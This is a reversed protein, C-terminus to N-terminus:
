IDTDQELPFIWVVHFEYIYMYTKVNTFVNIYLIEKM